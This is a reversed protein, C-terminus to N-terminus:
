PNGQRERVEDAGQEQGGEQDGKEAGFGRFLDAEPYIFVVSRPADEKIFVFVLLFNIVKRSPVLGFQTFFDQVLPMVM